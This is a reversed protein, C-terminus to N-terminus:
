PILRLERLFRSAEAYTVFYQTRWGTIRFADLHDPILTLIKDASFHTLDSLERLSILRPNTQQEIQKFKEFTMPEHAPRGRRRDPTARPSARREVRVRREMISVLM